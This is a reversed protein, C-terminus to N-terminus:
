GGERGPQRGSGRDAPTGALALRAPRGWVLARLSLADLRQVPMALSREPPVVGLALAEADPARERDPGAEDPAAEDPAAEDPAAEDPAAGAPAAGADVGFGFRETM